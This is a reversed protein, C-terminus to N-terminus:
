VIWGVIYYCNEYYSFTQNFQIIEQVKVNEPEPMKSDLIAIDAQCGKQVVFFDYLCIRMGEQELFTGYSNPVLITHNRYNESVFSISELQATLPNQSLIVLDNVLFAAILLTRSKKPLYGASIALIPILPIIYHPYLVSASMIFFVFCLGLVPLEPKRQSILKAQGIGGIILLPWDAILFGAYDKYGRGMQWILSNFFDPLESSILAYFPWVLFALMCPCLFKLMGEKNRRIFWVFFILFFIGSYKCLLSLGFFLGSFEIRKILLLYLSGLLFFLLFNDVIIWRSTVTLANSVAFLSASFYAANRDRLLKTAILFVLLTDVIGLFSVFARSMFLSFGSLSSVYAIIFWSLFPHDYLSKSVSASGSYGSTLDNNTLVSVARSLYVGEDFFIKPYGQINYFHLIVTM